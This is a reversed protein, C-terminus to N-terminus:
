WRVHLEFGDPLVTLSSAVSQAGAREVVGLLVSADFEPNTFPSDFRVVFDRPGKEEVTVLLGPASSMFFGRARRLVVSPGVMAVVTSAMRGLLTRFFGDIFVRGLRELAVERTLTPHVHQATVELCRKWVQAPYEPQQARLDFGAQRLQAQLAEDPKLAHQFLGEFASQAVLHKRPADM